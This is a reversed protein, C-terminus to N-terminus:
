YVYGVRHECFLWTHLRRRRWVRILILQKYAENWFPFVLNTPNLEKSVRGKFWLLEYQPIKNALGFTPM